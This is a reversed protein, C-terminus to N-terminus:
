RVTHEEILDLDYETYDTVNADRFAKRRARCSSCKGCHKKTTGGNGYCSWSQALFQSDMGLSIAHSVIQTKTLHAVPGELDIHKGPLIAFKLLEQWRYLWRQDNDPYHEAATRNIGTVIRAFNENESVAVALAMLMTNRAPVWETPALQRPNTNIAVGDETLASRLYKGIFPFRFTMLSATGPGWNANMAKKLDETAALERHTAKCGYDIYALMTREHPYATQSDWASVYSDLGGGCLVLTHKTTTM